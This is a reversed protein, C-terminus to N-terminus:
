GPIHPALWASLQACVPQPLKPWIRRALRFRGGDPSLEPAAADGRVWRQYALPQPAFGHFRKFDYAGRNTVRTRGFDFVRCGIEVARRMAAQYLVNNTQLHNFREDCGAFYPCFAAGFRFSVLGGVVRQGARVIQVHADEGAREVLTEFFAYPYSISALRRMSRCYLRWVAPLYRRDFEVILGHRTVGNRAAARAKRPLWGSVDDASEPLARTFTVHPGPEIVRWGAHAGPLRRPSVRSTACRLDIVQAGSQDASALAAEWLAARAADDGTLIGGAVAYPVSVLMTGGLRSRVCFLPFVGVIEEGRWAALYHPEHGFVDRVCEMWAIRHFFTGDPHVNVYRDWQPRRRHTLREVRLKSRQRDALERVYGGVGPIAIRATGAEM